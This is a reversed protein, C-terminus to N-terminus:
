NKLAAIDALASQMFNSKRKIEVQSLKEDSPNNTDNGADGDISASEEKAVGGLLALGINKGM